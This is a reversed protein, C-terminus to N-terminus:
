EYSKIQRELVDAYRQYGKIDLSYGLATYYNNFGTIFTKTSALLKILRKKENVAILKEMREAHDERLQKCYLSMEESNM